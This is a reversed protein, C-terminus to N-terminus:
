LAIATLVGVVAVPMHASICRNAAMELAVVEKGTRLTESFKLVASGAVCM